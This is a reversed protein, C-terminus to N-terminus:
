SAPQRSERRPSSDRCNRRTARRPPACETRPQYRDSDAAPRRVFADVSRSAPRPVQERLRANGRDENEESLAPAGHLARVFNEDARGHQDRHQRKHQQKRRRDLEVGFRRRGAHTGCERAPTRRDGDNGSMPNTVVSAAATSAATERRRRGSCASETIFSAAAQRREHYAAADGHVEDPPAALRHLRFLFSSRRKRRLEHSQARNRTAISRGVHTSDAWKVRTPICSTVQKGAYTVDNYLDFRHNIQSARRFRVTTPSPASFTSPRTAIASWSRSARRREEQWLHHLRDPHRRREQEAAQTPDHFCQKVLVPAAAFAPADSAVAFSACLVAGLSLRALIKM